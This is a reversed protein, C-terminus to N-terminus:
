LPAGDEVQHQSAPFIDELYDLIQEKSMCDLLRVGGLRNLAKGIKVYNEKGNINPHQNLYELAAQLVSKNRGLNRELLNHQIDQHQLLVRTLKYPNEKSSDHTLHAFWWLRAIGNRSLSRSSDGSLFYRSEITGQQQPPWRWIMYDWFTEHCFYTWLRSDSAQVESLKGELASYLRISNELDSSSPSGDKVLEITGPIEIKTQASWNEHNFFENLWAADRSYWSSVANEPMRKLQDLYTQKIIRLKM